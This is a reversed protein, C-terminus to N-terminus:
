SYSRRSHYVVCLSPLCGHELVRVSFCLRLLDLVGSELDAKRGITGNM